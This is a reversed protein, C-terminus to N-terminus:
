LHRTPSQATTLAQAPAQRSPTRLTRFARATSRSRYSALGTTNTALIVVGLSVWIGMNVDTKYQVQYNQGPATSWSLTVGKSNSTIEQILPASPVSLRFITGLNFDGGGSTVGYFNGDSAQTLGAVPEVGNATGVFTFLTTLQGAPTMKFITGSGTSPLTNNNNLFATDATTGYLGGDAGQVLAAVPFAGDDGGTFSFLSQFTGNTGIKFITGYGYSGGIESTGYLSQDPGTVLGGVPQAGNNSTFAFLSAFQGSTSIRFITGLGTTNGSTDLGQFGTGGWSTTGYLLGDLGQVLRCHPGAGNTGNFSFISSYQGGATLRFVTGWVYRGGGVTTGYFNGDKALMVGGWPGSGDPGSSMFSYISSPVGFSDISYIMGNQYTGDSTVTGYFSGDAGEALGALGPHSGATGGGFSYLANFTGDLGIQFVAGYGFIFSLAGGYNATGYLKGDSGQCLTGWPFCGDSNGSFSYLNTFTVGAFAGGGGAGQYLAFTLLWLCCHKRFWRSEPERSMANLGITFTVSPHTLLESAVM